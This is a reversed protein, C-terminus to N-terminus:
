LVVAIAEKTGEQPLESSDTDPQSKGTTLTALRSQDQHETSYMQLHLVINGIAGATSWSEETSCLSVWLRWRKSQLATTQFVPAM